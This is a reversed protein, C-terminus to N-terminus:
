PSLQFADKKLLMILPAVINGYDKVFKNYYCILGLFGQLSKLSKPVFWNQMDNIKYPDVKVGEKSIIHGLYDIERKGFSCKYKKVYLRHERLIQLQDVHAM